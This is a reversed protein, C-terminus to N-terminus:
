DKSFNYIFGCNLTTQYKTFKAAIIIGAKQKPILNANIVCGFDNWKQIHKNHLNYQKVYGIIPIINFYKSIPITYGCHWYDNIYTQKNNIINTANHYGKDVYLGLCSISIGNVHPTKNNIINYVGVADWGVTITTLNNPNFWEWKNYQKDTAKGINLNTILLTVILIINYKTKM